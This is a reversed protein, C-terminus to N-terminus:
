FRCLGKITVLEDMLVVFTVEFIDDEVWSHHYDVLKGEDEWQAKLSQVEDFEFWQM